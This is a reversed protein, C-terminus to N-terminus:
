MLVDFIEKGSLLCNRVKPYCCITRSSNYNLQLSGDEFISRILALYFPRKPKKDTTFHSTRKLPCAGFIDLGFSRMPHETVM